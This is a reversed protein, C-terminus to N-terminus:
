TCTHKHKLGLWARDILCTTRPHKSQATPLSYRKCTNGRVGMIVVQFIRVGEPGELHASHLAYKRETLDVDKHADMHDDSVYCEKSHRKPLRRTTDAEWRDNCLGLYSGNPRCEELLGQLLRRWLMLGLHYQGYIPKRSSRGHTPHTSIRM